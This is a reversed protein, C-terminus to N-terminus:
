VEFSGKSSEEIACYPLFIGSFILPFALRRLGILPDVGRSHIELLYFDLVVHWGRSGM